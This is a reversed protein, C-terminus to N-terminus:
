RRDRSNNANVAIAMAAQAAATAAQSTALVAATIEKQLMNIQMQMANNFDRQENLVRAREDAKAEIRSMRERLDIMLTVSGILAVTILGQIVGYVNRALANGNGTAFSSNEPESM